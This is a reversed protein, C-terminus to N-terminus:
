LVMGAFAFVRVADLEAQTVSSAVVNDLATKDAATLMGALSTTAAPLITNNGDSSIVTVTTATTSNTLNTSVNSVLAAFNNNGSDYVLNWDSWTSASFTRQYKESTAAEIYEQTVSGGRALVRLYGNATNPSNTGNVVFYNGGTVITDLDVGNFEIIGGIGFDGVKLVRGATTDTDSTTIDETSVTGLADLIVKDAAVMVGAQAASAAGINTNTGDSSEITVNTATRTKTLNTSVNTDKATNLAVADNIGAITTDLGTINATTHTHSDNAVTANLTANGLNTITVSGSLDEGLTITFDDVNFDVTDDAGDYVVNIGSETNTSFMTGVATFVSSDFDTVDAAVHTHNGRAVQTAGTGVDLNSV